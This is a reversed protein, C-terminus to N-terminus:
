RATAVLLSPLLSLAVGVGFLVLEERDYDSPKRLLRERGTVASMDFVNQDLYDGIRAITERSGTIRRNYHWILSLGIISMIFSVLLIWGAAPRLVAAASALAANISVTWKFVDWRQLKGAAILRRGDELCSLLFSLGGDSPISLPKRDPNDEADQNASM